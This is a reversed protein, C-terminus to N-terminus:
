ITINKLKEIMIGVDEKCAAYDVRATYRTLNPICPLCVVARSLCTNNCERFSSSSFKSRFTRTAM